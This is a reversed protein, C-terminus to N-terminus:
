TVIICLAPKCRDLLTCYKREKKNNNVLGKATHELVTACDSVSFPRGGSVLWGRRLGVWIQTGALSQSGTLVMLCTPM